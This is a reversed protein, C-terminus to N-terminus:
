DICAFSEQSRLQAKQLQATSLTVHERSSRWYHVMRLTSSEPRRQLQKAQLTKSPPPSWPREPHTRSRKVTGDTHRARGDGMERVGETDRWRDKEIEKQRARDRDKESGRERENEM